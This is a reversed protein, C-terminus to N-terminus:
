NKQTGTCVAHGTMTVRPAVPNQYMQFDCKYALEYYFDSVNNASYVITIGAGVEAGINLGPADVGAKFLYKGENTRAITRKEIVDGKVNGTVAYNGQAMNAVPAVPTELSGLAPGTIITIPGGNYSAHPNVMAGRSDWLLRIVLTLQNQRVPFYFYNRVEYQIKDGFEIQSSNPPNEGEFFTSTEERLWPYFADDEESTTTATKASSLKTVSDILFQGYSKRVADNSFNKLLYDYQGSTINIPAKMQAVTTLNIKIDDTSEKKTCSFLLFSCLSVAALKCFTPKM